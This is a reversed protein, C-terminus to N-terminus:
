QAGGVEAAEIRELDSIVRCADAFRAVRHVDETSLHRLREALAWAATQERRFHVRWGHKRRRDDNRMGSRQRKM